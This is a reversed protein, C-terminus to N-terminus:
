NLVKDIIQAPTFDQEEESNLRYKRKMNIENVIKNMGSMKTNM